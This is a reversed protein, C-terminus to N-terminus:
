DNDCAKAIDKLRDTPDKRREIGDSVKWEQWCEACRSKIFAEGRTSVVRKSRVSGSRGCYPCAVEPM